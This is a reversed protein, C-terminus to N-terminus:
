RERRETAIDLFDRRPGRLPEQKSWIARLQRPMSVGDISIQVLRGDRIDSAVALSSLVSPANASVVAAKIATVSNLELLPPESPHVTSEFTTRTGSGPERQVLASSALEAATVSGTAAWPHNPGTVVVLEDTAVVRTDLGSPIDPGEVFGIDALGDLVHRSVEASNMLRMRTHVGPHRSGMAAIWGPALHEAVTMSAAVTLHANEEQLLSNVGTGFREAANLVNEAWELVAVGEPTLGVGSSSRDFVRLGVDREAARVRASVAQQSLGHERGAASMSGLRAVSVIVDLAALDPVRPSLTM